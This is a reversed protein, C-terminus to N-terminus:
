RGPAEENGPVPPLPRRLQRWLTVGLGVQLLALATWMWRLWPDAEENLWWLVAMAPWLPVFALQFKQGARRSRAQCAAWRADRRAQEADAADM